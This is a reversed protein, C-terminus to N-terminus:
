EAEKKKAGKDRRAIEQEVMMLQIKLLLVDRNKRALRIRRKLESALKGLLDSFKPVNSVDTSTSKLDLYRKILRQATLSLNQIEQEIDLKRKVM